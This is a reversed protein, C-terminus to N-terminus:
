RTIAMLPATEEDGDFTTVTVIGAGGAAGVFRAAVVAMTVLLRADIVDV